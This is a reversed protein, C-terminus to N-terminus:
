PLDPSTLPPREAAACGGWDEELRGWGGRVRASLRESSSRRRLCSSSRWPMTTVPRSIARTTPDATPLPISHCAHTSAPERAGQHDRSEDAASSSTLTSRPLHLVVRLQLLRDLLHHRGHFPRHSEPESLLRHHEAAAPRLHM